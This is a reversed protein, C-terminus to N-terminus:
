TVFVGLGCKICKKKNVGDSEFEHDCEATDLVTELEEDKIIIESLQEM